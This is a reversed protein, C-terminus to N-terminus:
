TSAAADSQGQGLSELHAAITAVAVGAADLEAATLRTFPVEFQVRSATILFTGSVEVGLLAERVDESLIAAVNQEKGTIVFREDLTDDGTRLGTENTLGADLIRITFSADVGEPNSQVITHAQSFVGPVDTTVTVSQGELIKQLDSTHTEMGEEFTSANAMRNWHFRERLGLVVLGLVWAVGAGGVSVTTPALGSVVGELVVVALLIVVTWVTQLTKTGTFRRRDAM